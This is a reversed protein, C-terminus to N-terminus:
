VSSAISRCPTDSADTCKMSFGNESSVNSELTLSAKSPSLVGFTWHVLARTRHPPLDATAEAGLRVRWLKAWAVLARKDKADAALKAESSAIISMNQNFVPTPGAQALQGAAQTNKGIAPGVAPDATYKGIITFAQMLGSTDIQMSTTRDITAGITAGTKEEIYIVDNGAQKYTIKVPQQTMAMLAQLDERAAVAALAGMLGEHDLGTAKLQASPEAFTLQMPLGQGAILAQAIPPYYDTAPRTADIKIATVGLGNYDDIKDEVKV